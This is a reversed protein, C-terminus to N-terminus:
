LGKSYGCICLGEKEGKGLGPYWLEPFSTSTQPEPLGKTGACDATDGGLGGTLGLGNPVKEIGVLFFEKVGKRVPLTQEAAYPM